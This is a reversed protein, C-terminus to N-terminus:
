ERRGTAWSITIPSGRAGSRKAVIRDRYKAPRRAKLLFILLADSYKRVYGCIEGEHFRPEDVGDRARRLCEDELLDAGEEIADAMAAAFAEDSRRWLYLTSRPVGASRAAAAISAGATLAALIKARKEPTWTTCNAM